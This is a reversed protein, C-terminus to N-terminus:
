PWCRRSGRCQRAEENENRRTITSVSGSPGFIGEKQFLAYDPMTPVRPLEPVLALGLGLGLDLGLGLGLGLVLGLGLSLGLGLGLGM